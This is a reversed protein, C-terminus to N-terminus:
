EVSVGAELNASLVKRQKEIADLLRLVAKKSEKPDLGQNQQSFLSCYWELVTWDMDRGGLNRDHQQALIQCKEKTFSAAFASTKSHGMDVFVVNRATDTLEAKRFIGYGLAIASNENFLRMVNVEAIKCADLLARREAATYYSPVSVVAEKNEFGNHAIIKRIKGLFAATVQEPVLVQKQGQYVVEFAIKGAETTLTKCPVFKTEQRLQSYDGPLGLFRNPYTVTNKFNSKIQVYGQEGLFREQDSYGVVNQTERHSGENTIVEVGGKKAIAVVTRSSGLDIGVAGPTLAQM